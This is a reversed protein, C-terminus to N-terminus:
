CLVLLLSSDVVQAQGWAAELIQQRKEADKVRVFRWHQINFATPSLIAHEMLENVEAETMQHAPDYHKVSRRTQIAQKIDM